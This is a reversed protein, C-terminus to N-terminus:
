FEADDIKQLAKEYNEKTEEETADGAKWFDFLVVFDEVASETAEYLKVWYDNQQINKLIETARKNDDWFGSSLSLQKEEAVKM